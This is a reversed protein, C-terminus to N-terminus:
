FGFLMNYYAYSKYWIICHHSTGKWETCTVHMSKHSFPVLYTICVFTIFVFERLTHQINLLWSFCRNRYNTKNIVIASSLTGDLITLCLHHWNFSSLGFMRKSRIIQNEFLLFIIILNSSQNWVNLVNLLFAFLVSKFPSLSVYLVVIYGFNYAHCLPVPIRSTQQRGLM